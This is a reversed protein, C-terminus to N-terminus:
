LLPEGQVGFEVIFPHDIQSVPVVSYVDSHGFRLLLANNAKGFLAAHANRFIESLEAHSM